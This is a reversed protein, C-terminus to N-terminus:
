GEEYAKNIFYRLLESRKCDYDVAVKWLRNWEKQTLRLKFVRKKVKSKDKM